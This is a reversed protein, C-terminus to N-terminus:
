AGDSVIESVLKALTGTLRLWRRVRTQRRKSSLSRCCQVTSGREVQAGNTLNGSGKTIEPPM